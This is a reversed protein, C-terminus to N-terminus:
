KVINKEHNISEQDKIYIDHNNTIYYAYEDTLENLDEIDEYKIRKTESNEEPSIDYISRIDLRGSDERSTDLESSLIAHSENGSM